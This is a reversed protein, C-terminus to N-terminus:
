LLFSSPYTLSTSQFHVLVSPFLYIITFPWLFHVSVSYFFSLIPFSSIFHALVSSSFSVPALLFLSNGMSSYSWSQTQMHTYPIPFFLLQPLVQYLLPETIHLPSSWLTSHPLFPLFLTAPTLHPPPTSTERTRQVLFIRGCLYMCSFNFEFALYCAYVTAGEGLM